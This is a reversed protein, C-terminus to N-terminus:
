SPLKFAKPSSSDFSATEQRWIYNCSLVILATKYIRSSSLSHLAVFASLVVDGATAARKRVCSDGPYFLLGACQSPYERRSVSTDFSPGSNLDCGVCDSPLLLVNRSLVM